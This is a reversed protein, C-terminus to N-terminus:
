IDSIFKKDKLLGVGSLLTSVIEHDEIPFMYVLTTLAKFRGMEDTLIDYMDLIDILEKGKMVKYSFLYQKFEYLNFKVEKSKPPILKM